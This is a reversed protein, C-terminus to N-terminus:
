KANKRVCFSRRKVVVVFIKQEGVYMKLLFNALFRFYIGRFM